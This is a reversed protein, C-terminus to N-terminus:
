YDLDLDGIGALTDFEALGFPSMPTEELESAPVDVILERISDTM